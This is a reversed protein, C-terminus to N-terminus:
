GDATTGTSSWRGSLSFMEGSCTRRSRPSSSRGPTTLRSILTSDNVVPNGFNGLWKSFDEVTTYIGGAGYSAYLDGSDKYGTSDMTYGQAAEPVITLPDARVMTSTMGLPEFINEEMWQPFKQGSSLKVDM